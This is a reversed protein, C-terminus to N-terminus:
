ACTSCDCTLATLRTFTTEYCDVQDVKQESSETSSKQSSSLRSAVDVMTTIMTRQQLVREISSLPSYSMSHVIAAERTEADASLHRQSAQTLQQL